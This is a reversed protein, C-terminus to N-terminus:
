KKAAKTLLDRLKRADDDSLQRVDVKRTEIPGGDLGSIELGQPPKGFAYAALLESAKAWDEGRGEVEKVWAEIILVGEKGGKRLAEQAEERFAQGAKPRGGPNITHGPLIRGNAGRGPTKSQAKAKPAM